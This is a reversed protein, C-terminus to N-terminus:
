LIPVVDYKGSKTLPVLTFGAKKAAAIFEILYDLKEQTHCHTIAIINPKTEGMTVLQQLKADMTKRSVDPSDLFIDNRYSPIHSKQATQYAVSVNSTRSDLFIKNHNRLVNMVIQMIGADTTALSGMHNNIGLCLHMQSIFRSLLRTIEAEKMQILIANKGPDVRPYDIPEMPVHIITERGQAHAREMTSVSNKMEPFIAFTVEKPLGLFGDLLSGGIGGFDDVVIALTKPTSKDKYAKSDFFLVVDVQKDENPKIFSLTQKNGSEIANKLKGGISEVRGKIIINAYYLDYVSRDIPASITITNGKKSRKRLNKDAGLEELASIITEELDKKEQPVLAEEQVEPRRDKSKARESPRKKEHRTETVQGVPSKTGAPKKIIYIIAALCIIVLLLSWKLSGQKAKKTKRIPKKRKTVPM